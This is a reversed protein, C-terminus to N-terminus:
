IKLLDSLERKLGCDVCCCSLSTKGDIKNNNKELSQVNLVILIWKLKKIKKILKIIKKDNAFLIKCTRGNGDCLPNIESLYIPYFKVLTNKKM